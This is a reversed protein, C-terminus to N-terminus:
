NRRISSNKTFHKENNQGLKKVSETFMYTSGGFCNWVKIHLVLIFWYFHKILLCYSFLVLQITMLATILKCILIRFSLFLLSYALLVTIGLIILIWIFGVRESLLSGFITKYQCHQPFLSDCLPLSFLCYFFFHPEECIAGNDRM